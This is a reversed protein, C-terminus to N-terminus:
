KGDIRVKRWNHLYIDPHHGETKAVEGVRNVFVLAEKFNKFAIDRRIQRGGVVDWPTKLQFLYKKIDEEGM